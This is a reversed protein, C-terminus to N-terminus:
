QAGSGPTKSALVLYGVGWDRHRTLYQIGYATRMVARGPLSSLLPYLKMTASRDVGSRASNHSQDALAQEDADLEKKNLRARWSLLLNSLPFGWCELQQVHLNFDALLGLLDNKEYRRYHGAWVDSATWKRQHAPVSLLLKGEPKLWTLWRTLAQRQDEIHELVELALLYDFRESWDASAQDYIAASDRNLASATHFASESTELGQCSFGLKSLEYLLTGAGCGVELLEGRKEDAMLKLVRNRRMLFSPAPAWNQEPLVPGYLKDIQM